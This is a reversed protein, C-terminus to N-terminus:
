ELAAKAISFSIAVETGKGEVSSVNITGNHREVLRKAIALGLGNGGGERSRAKDVRYFRDMIFPLDEAPIGIGQDCVVIIIQEKEINGSIIIQKTNGAYKTANDLLILMIQQFYDASIAVQIDELKVRNVFDFSPHVLRMSQIVKNLELQPYMLETMLPVKAEQELRSLQLLEQVLQKLRLLEDRCISLSEEMREPHEKGWRQLMALHGEMIALPTRLEHSADEVFQKQQRFSEEVKDMMDNFMHMLITLEDNHNAPKMRQHLDSRHISRITRAMAQLPKLLRSALLGGAIGSFVIASLGFTLMVRYIADTLERFEDVGRVIEVTGQFQHIVLPSRMVLYSSNGRELQVETVTTFRPQVLDLQMNQSVSAIINGDSAVIRILQNKQNMTHLFQQIAKREKEEFLTERELFYNLIQIMDQQTHAKERDAMWNDIYKYQIINYFSFLLFILLASWLTLKWKIPLKRIYFLITKM